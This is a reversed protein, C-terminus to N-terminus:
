LTVAPVRTTCVETEEPSLGMEPGHKAAHQEGVEPHVWEALKNKVQTDLTPVMNAPNMAGQMSHMM